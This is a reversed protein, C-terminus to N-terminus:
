LKAKLEKTFNQFAQGPNKEKMFKEGVLFGNFGCEQLLRITAISDIGSESIKVKDAPIKGSLGISCNIDVVFSKLDRNNVGVVDV